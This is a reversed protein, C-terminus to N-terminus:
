HVLAATPVVDVELTRLEPLLRSLAEITTSRSHGIAIATGQIRAIRVAEHLQDRINATENEADLFVTRSACPLDLEAAVNCAVTDTTTRSDVFYLDQQRLQTLVWTMGQRDSTFRSGMHNHVGAAHPVSTLAENVLNEIEARPAKVRLFPDTNASRDRAEMPLHVLVERHFLHALEAVQTSFPRFPTIAMSVPPELQIVRRADLLSDGLDEIIVAIRPRRFRASFLLTHTLLGDVTVRAEAGAEGETLLVNVGRLPDQVPALAAALSAGTMTANMASQYHRHTWHLRGSGRGEARPEPLELSLGALTTTVDEIREHFGTQWDAEFALPVLLSLDLEDLHQTSLYVLSAFSCSLALRFLLGWGSVASRRKRTRRPRQPSRRQRSSAKRRPASM